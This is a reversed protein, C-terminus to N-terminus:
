VWWPRRPLQTYGSKACTKAMFVPFCAKPIRIGRNYGVCLNSRGQKRVCSVPISMVRDGTRARATARFLNVRWPDGKRHSLGM